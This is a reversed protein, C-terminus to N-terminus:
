LNSICNVSVSCCMQGNMKNRDWIAWYSKGVSHVIDMVTQFAQFYFLFFGGVFDVFMRFQIAKKTRPSNTESVMLVYDDYNESM